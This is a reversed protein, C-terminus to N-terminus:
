QFDEERNGSIMKSFSILTFAACIVFVIIGIVSAMKYNYYENTLRFLWTVLLDVEKANSNALAQDSTIYVDQTLLYIVNFNNINKVFDTILAPGQIFLVYPMTIKCFVQFKNAGDIRASEIQDSPINMLVGTAILMQYPVGVWINILIIMVKAWKADTLFPIYSLGSSVLGINKLFQTIGLNSCITNVIGTDAFFNRVLLLTVFQPVAIAIIFLTRWMKPLKTAKNNILMALLIGGFFTTLTALVAWVLTWGLIKRFAYGFTITMSNSFLNKFNKFGVWQFLANPPMHNQDYNTFAIAIMVLIPLINMLIVGITPLTLLTIHFKKGTMDKVDEKFTNIHLGKKAKLQLEYVAKINHIYLLIFVLILFLSVISNLLITFSNDYDNVTAQMTLPDFTQEFQVTGLTGFKALAPAAYFICMLIFVLETFTMIIGKIIQKRAFYGAGMVLLSSKVGIDGKSVAVGFEKFYNGIGKFFGIMKNKM